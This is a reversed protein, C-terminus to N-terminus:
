SYKKAAAGSASIRVQGAIVGFLADGPHGQSFIVAGKPYNRRTAFAAIRELASDPLGRFLYNKQLVAKASRAKTASAARSPNRCKRHTPATGDANM